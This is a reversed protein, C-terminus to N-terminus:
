APQIVKLVKDVPFRVVIPGIGWLSQEQRWFAETGSKWLMYAAVIFILGAFVSGPHGIGDTAQRCAHGGPKRHYGRCTAVLNSIDAIPRNVVYAIM